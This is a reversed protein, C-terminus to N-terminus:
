LLPKGTGKASIRTKQTQQIEKKTQKARGTERGYQTLSPATKAGAAPTAFTKNKEVEREAGNSARSKQLNRETLVVEKAKGEKKTPRIEQSRQVERMLPTNERSEETRKQEAQYGQPKEVEKQTRQTIERKETNQNMNTETKKKANGATVQRQQLFLSSQQAKGESSTTKVLRGTETLHTRNTPTSEKRPESPKIEKPQEVEKREVRKFVMEKPSAGPRLVSAEKEKVLPRKAKLEKVQIQRVTQPPKKIEAIERVVPRGMNKDPTINPKGSRAEKSLFLNEKAEVYKHRGNVFTDHQVVTVAKHVHINKYVTKQVYINTVNVNTVNVSHPGYYGHGYYIEGPALPVWAVYTPTYVWGV